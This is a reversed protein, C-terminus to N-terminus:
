VNSFTTIEQNNSATFYSILDSKGRIWKDMFENQKLTNKFGSEEQFLYYLGGNVLVEHFSKPYPIQEEITNLELLSVEPVYFTTINYAISPDFPAFKIRKEKKYICYTSPNSTINNFTRYKFFSIKDLQKLPTSDSGNFVSLVLFPDKNLSIYNNPVASVKVEEELIDSNVSATKRYLESHALNLYKLAITKFDDYNNEGLALNGMLVIMDQINM